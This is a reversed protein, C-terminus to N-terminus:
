YRHAVAVPQGSDISEEVAIAVLAAKAAEEVSCPVETGNRLAPLLRQWQRRYSSLFDGGTGAARIATPLSRLTAAASRVRGGIGHVPAGLVSLSFGDFRYLNLHLRATRGAFDLDNRPLTDQSFVSTLLVGSETTASLVVAAADAAGSRRRAWVEVVQEGLLHQVLDFHHIGIEFVVGGGTERRDRWEPLDVNLGLDTTWVSQVVDLQGLDERRLVPVAREVLRHCRLNHGVAVGGAASRASEVISELEAVSLGLPKEVFIHKGSSIARQVMSGRQSVPVCIAVLDVAEDDILQRYDAYRQKVGFRDAVQRLRHGDKDALAMVRASSLGLLAPLHMGATVRGCGILGIGLKM